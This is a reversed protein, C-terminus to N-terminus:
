LQWHNLTFISTGLYISPIRKITYIAKHLIIKMITKKFHYLLVQAAESLTVDHSTTMEGEFM